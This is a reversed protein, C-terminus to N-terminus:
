FFGSMLSFSFYFHADGDSHLLTVEIRTQGVRSDTHGGGGGSDWVGKALTLLVGLHGDTGALM